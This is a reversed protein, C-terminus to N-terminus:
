HVLMVSFMFVVQPYFFFDRSTGTQRRLDCFGGASSRAWGCVEGHARSVDRQNSMGFWGEKFSQEKSFLIASCPEM